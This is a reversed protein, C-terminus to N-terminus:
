TSLPPRRCGDCQMSRLSCRGLRRCPSWELFAPSPPFCASSQLAVVLLVPTLRRETSLPVAAAAPTAAAVWSLPPNGVTHDCSIWSMVTRVTPMATDLMFGSSSMALSARSKETRWVAASIGAIWARAGSGARVRAVQELRGVHQHLEHPRRAVELGPVGGFQGLPIRHDIEVLCGALDPGIGPEAIALVRARHGVSRAM